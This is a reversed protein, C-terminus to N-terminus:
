PFHYKHSIFLRVKGKGRERGEGRKKGGGKREERRNEVGAM